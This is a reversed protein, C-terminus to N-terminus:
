RLVEPFNNTPLLKGNIRRGMFPYAVFLLALALFPCIEPMYPNCYLHKLMTHSGDKDTKTRGYEVTICDGGWGLASCTLENVNMSRAMLNWSWSNDFCSIVDGEKMFYTGMRKFLPFRLKSKGETM